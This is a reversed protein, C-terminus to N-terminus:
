YVIFISKVESKSYEIDVEIDPLEAAAKKACRDALENGGVGIHAPVWIFTTSIGSKSLSNALQLIDYVIDQRSESHLFKLSTLASSSDSAIVVQKPRNSEVWLLAMWIALLEASYVALDDNIRKASEINLQPIVYAIGMKTDTKKSADTYIIIGEKYKRSIYGQVRYHDM